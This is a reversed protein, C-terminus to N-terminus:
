PPSSPPAAAAILLPRPPASTPKFTLPLHHSLSSPPSSNFSFSFLRFATYTTASRLLLSYSPFAAAAAAAALPLFADACHNESFYPSHQLLLLRANYLKVASSVLVLFFLLVM